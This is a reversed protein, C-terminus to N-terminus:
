KNNAKLILRRAYGWDISLKRGITRYSLGKNRLEKALKKRKDLALRKQHQIEMNKKLTPLIRDVLQKKVILYPAIHLIFRYINEQKSIYFVWSDKWYIKRKKVKIIHGSKFFRQIDILVEENAQAIYIRYGKGNHTLSGEGDFFGAIYSWNM